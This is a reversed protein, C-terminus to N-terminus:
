FLCFCFRYWVHLLLKLFNHIFYAFFYIFVIIIIIFISVSKSTDQEHFLEEFLQIGAREENTQRVASKGNQIKWALVRVVRM